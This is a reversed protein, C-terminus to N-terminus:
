NFIIKKTTVPIKVICYPQTMVALSSGTPSTQLVTVTLNDQNELIGKITISYGGSGKVEDFIALVIFKSFDIDTETFNRTENNVSNMKGILETWALNSAIVLNQKAFLISLERM